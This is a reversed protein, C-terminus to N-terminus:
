LKKSTIPDNFSVHGFDRQCGYCHWEPAGDHIMCGGSIVKGSELDELLQRTLAPKGYIVKAVDTAGCHPCGPKSREDSDPNRFVPASTTSRTAAAKNQRALRLGLLSVFALLLCLLLVAWHPLNSWLALPVSFILSLVALYILQYRVM